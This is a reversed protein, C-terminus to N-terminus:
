EWDRVVECGMVAQCANNRASRAQNVACGSLVQDHAERMRIGAALEPARRGDGTAAVPLARIPVRPPRLASADM